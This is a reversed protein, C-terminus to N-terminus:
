STYYGEYTLMDCLLGNYHGIYSIDSCLVICASPNDRQWTTVELLADDDIGSCDNNILTNVWYAPLEISFMRQKRSAENFVEATHRMMPAIDDMIIASEYKAKNNSM